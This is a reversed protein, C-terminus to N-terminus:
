EGLRNQSKSIDLVSYKVYKYKPNRYSMVAQSRLQRATENHLNLMHCIDDYDVSQFFKLAQEQGNSCDYFARLLCEVWLNHEPITNSNNM